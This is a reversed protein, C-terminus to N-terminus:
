ESRGQEGTLASWAWVYMTDADWEERFTEDAPVEVLLGMRELDDFAETFGESVPFLEELARRLREVERASESVPRAGVPVLACVTHEMSPFKERNTRCVEEAQGRTEWVTLTVRVAVGSPPFHAVYGLPEGSETPAGAALFREAFEVAEPKGTAAAIRRIADEFSETPPSEPGASSELAGSRVPNGMGPEEVSGKRGYANIAAAIYQVIAEGGDWSKISLLRDNDADVLDWEEQDKDYRASVPGAFPEPAGTTESM